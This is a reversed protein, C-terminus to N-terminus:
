VSVVLFACTWPCATAERVNGNRSASLLNVQVWSNLVVRPLMSSRGGVFSFFLSLLQPKPIRKPLSFKPPPPMRVLPSSDETKFNGCFVLIKGSFETNWYNWYNQIRRGKGNVSTVPCWHSQGILLPWQCGSNPGWFGHPLFLSSLGM